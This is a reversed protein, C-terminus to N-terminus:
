KVEAWNSGTKPEAVIPVTLGLKPGAGELCERLLSRAEEGRGIPHQTLVEDHVTTVISFGEPARRRYENMGLVLLDRSGGQVLYNVVLRKGKSHIIRAASDLTLRDIKYKERLGKLYKGREAGLSELFEEPQLEPIYRIRGARTKCWPTPGRSSVVKIVRSRWREIEPYGKHLLEIKEKAETESCDLLGAMKRPGGGYLLFGFNITKGLQRDVGLVDATREHLDAGELFAERLHGGCYDAFYRLEVQSYDASTFEMGSAPVFCSRIRTAWVGRAPQNQINPYSSSLRGTVTGFHHLDPHLRRDAWQLAEEILGDTYTNVIKGVEQHELRLGALLPGLGRGHEANYEMAQKNTSFAGAATRGHEVWIGEVFLTQLEKSSSIKLECNKRWRLLVEDLEDEGAERIKVLEKRDLCIGQLKMEALVMAFDCEEALWDPYRPDLYQEQNFWLGLQLTNLADHCAYQLVDAGSKHAIAPDFQPSERELLRLALEKLGIGKNRGEVLWAAIMSDLMGPLPYGARIMVQHDFKCNHAWLKRRKAFDQLWKAIRHLDMFSANNGKHRVPVYFCEEDEFAVSLGLLASYSINIFDRGRLLPGAAETDFGLYGDYGEFKKLLKDVKLRTNALIAKM